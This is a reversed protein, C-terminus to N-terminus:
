LRPTDMRKLCRDPPGESRFAEAGCATCQYKRLTGRDGTRDERWRCDRTAAGRRAVIAVIVLAIVFILPILM